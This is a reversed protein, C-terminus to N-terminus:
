ISGLQANKTEETTFFNFGQIMYGIPLRIDMLQINSFLPNNVIDEVIEAMLEVWIPLKKEQGKYSLNYKDKIIMKIYTHTLGSSQFKSEKKLNISMCYDPKDASLNWKYFSLIIKREKKHNLGLAQNEIYKDFDEITKEASYTSISLFILSFFIAQVKTYM